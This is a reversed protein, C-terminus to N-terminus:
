KRIGTVALGLAVLLMLGVLYLYSTEYIIGGISITTVLYHAEGSVIFYYGSNPAAGKSEM